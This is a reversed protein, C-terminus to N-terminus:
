EKRRELFGPSHVTKGLLENLPQGEDNTGAEQDIVGDIRLSTPPETSMQFNKDCGVVDGDELQFCVRPKAPPPRKQRAQGTTKKKTNPARRQQVAEARKKQYSSAEKLIPKLQGSIVPETSNCRIQVSVLDENLERQHEDDTPLTALAAAQPARPPKRAKRSALREQEEQKM